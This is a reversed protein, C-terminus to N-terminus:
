KHNMMAYMDFIFHLKLMITVDLAFSNTLNTAMESDNKVSDDRSDIVRLQSPTPEKSDSNVGCIAPTIYRQNVQNNKRIVVVGLSRQRRQGLRQGLGNAELSM